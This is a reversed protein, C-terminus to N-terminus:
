SEIHELYNYSSLPYDFIMEWSKKFYLNMKKILKETPYFIGINTEDANELFRLFGNEEEGFYLLAGRDQSKMCDKCYFGGYISAVSRWQGRRFSLNCESCSDFEGAYGLLTMIHWEFYKGVIWPNFAELWLLVKRLTEYILIDTEEDKDTLKNIIETIQTIIILYELDAVLNSINNKENIGTLILLDNKRTAEFDFIKGLHSAQRLKSESNKIGKAYLTLKGYNKSYVMLLQDNDKTDALKLVIGEDRFYKNESM